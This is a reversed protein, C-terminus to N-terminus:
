QRCAEPKFLKDASCYDGFCICYNQGYTFIETHNGASSVKGSSLVNTCFYLKYIHFGLMRKVFNSFKFQAIAQYYAVFRIIIKLQDREVLHIRYLLQNSIRDRKNMGTKNKRTMPLLAPMGPIFITKDLLITLLSATAMGGDPFACTHPQEWPDILM